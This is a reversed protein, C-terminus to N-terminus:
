SSEGGEVQLGVMISAPSTGHVVGEPKEPVLARRLTSPIDRCLLHETRGAARSCSAKIDNCAGFSEGGNNV